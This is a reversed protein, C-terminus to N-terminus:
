NRRPRRRAKRPGLRERVLLGFPTPGSAARYVLALTGVDARPASLQTLAGTHLEPEVFDWPLFGWGLGGRILELKM